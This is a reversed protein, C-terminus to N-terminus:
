ERVGRGKEDMRRIRIEREGGGGGERGCVRVGESGEGFRQVRCEARKEM